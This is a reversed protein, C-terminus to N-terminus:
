EGDILLYKPWNNLDLKLENAPWQVPTEYHSNFGFAEPITAPFSYRRVAPAAGAAAAQAIAPISPDLKSIM